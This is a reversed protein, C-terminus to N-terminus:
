ECGVGESRLHYETDWCKGWHGFYNCDQKSDVGTCKSGGGHWWATEYYNGTKAAANAERRARAKDGDKYPDFPFSVDSCSDVKNGSCRVTGVMAHNNNVVLEKADKYNYRRSM